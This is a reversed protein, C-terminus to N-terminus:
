GPRGLGTLAAIIDGREPNKLLDDEISFLVRMSAREEIQRLIGADRLLQLADRPIQEIIERQLVV